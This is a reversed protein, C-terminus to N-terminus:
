RIGIETTVAALLDARLARSETAEGRLLVAGPSKEDYDGSAKDAQRESHKDLLVAIRLVKELPLKITVIAM